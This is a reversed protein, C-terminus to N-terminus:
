SSFLGRNYFNPFVDRKNDFSLFLSLVGRPCALSLSLTNKSYTDFIRITYITYAKSDKVSMRIRTYPIQLVSSLLSFQLRWNRSIMKGFWIKYVNKM